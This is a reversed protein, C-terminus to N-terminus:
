RCSRVLLLPTAGASSNAEEFHILVVAFLSVLSSKERFKKMVQEVVYFFAVLSINNGPSRASTAEFDELLLSEHFM